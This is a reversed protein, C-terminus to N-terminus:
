VREGLDLPVPLAYLSEMTGIAPRNVMEKAIATPLYASPEPEVVIDFSVLLRMIREVNLPTLLPIAVGSHAGVSEGVLLPNAPKAAALQKASVPATAQALVPFVKMDHAVKLAMFVM